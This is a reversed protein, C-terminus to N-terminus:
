ADDTAHTLRLEGDKEMDRIATVIRTMAADCDAEGVDGREEAATRILDALRQSIGSLLFEIGEENAGTAAAKM